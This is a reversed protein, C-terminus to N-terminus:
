YLASTYAMGFKFSILRRMWETSLVMCVLVSLVVVIGTARSYLRSIEKDKYGLIKVMSIAYANRDIAIKSLLFILLM